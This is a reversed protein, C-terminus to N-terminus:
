LAYLRYPSVVAVAVTYLVFKTMRYFHKRNPHIFGQEGEDHVVEEQDSSTDTTGAEM